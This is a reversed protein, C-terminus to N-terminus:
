ALIWVTAALWGAGAAALHRDHLLDWAADGGGGRKHLLYTYRFVGYLVFPLTWLLKDTGHLSVTAEDVTYLAYATIVGAASISIMNDLLAPSYEELVPRHDGVAGDLAILEARRKTFGLFVTVMLGCVLLWHSPAIGIGLTGALIRLMFGGAIMFVDLIPVHKLGVSYAINLAIYGGAIGAAVPSVRAALALGAAALLVAFALAAGVGVAGSAVPRARKRPHSRDVERDLADNLAYVASSVLCFAAFALAARTTIAADSWGHGFLWGVLVFGNKVWQHPRALRVYNALAGSM